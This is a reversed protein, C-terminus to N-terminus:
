YFWSSSKVHYCNGIPNHKRCCNCIGTTKDIEHVRCSLRESYSTNRYPKYRASCKSCKLYKIEYYDDRTICINGM